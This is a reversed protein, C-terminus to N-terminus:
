KLKVERRVLREGVNPLSKTSTLLQRPKLRLPVQKERIIADAESITEVSSSLDQNSKNVSALSSESTPDITEQSDPIGVTPLRSRRDSVAILEM